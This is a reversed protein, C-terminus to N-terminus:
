FPIEDEAQDGADLDTDTKPTSVSAPAPVKFGAIQDVFFKDVETYDRQVEGKFVIEIPKPLDEKDFKWKILEGNQRLSFNDFLGDQGTWISVELNESSELTLLRNFFGRTAMSLGAKWVYTEGAENDVFEMIVVDPNGKWKKIREADKEPNFRKATSVKTLTGSFRDVKDVVTYKGDVKKVVEFYPTGDKKYGVAKKHGVEQLFIVNSNSNSNNSGLAM